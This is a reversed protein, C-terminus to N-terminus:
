RNGGSMPLFQSAVAPGVADTRGAFARASSWKWDCGDAVLGRKVPNSNTYKIKEWLEDGLVNRDYGGGNQWFHLDGSLDRLRPLIPADLERWRDLVERAFLRKLSLLYRPVDDQENPVVVLHVHEPMIVWALLHAQQRATEAGLHELFRDKIRDNDFLRIRRYCSFTLFRATDPEIARRLTKKPPLEM